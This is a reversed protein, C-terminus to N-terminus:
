ATKMKQVTINQIALNNMKIWFNMRSNLEAEPEKVPRVGYYYIQKSKSDLIKGM